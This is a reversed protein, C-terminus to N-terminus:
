VGSVMRGLAAAVATPADHLLRHGADPVAFFSGPFGTHRMEDLL